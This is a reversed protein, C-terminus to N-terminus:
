VCGEPPVRRQYMDAILPFGFNKGSRRGGGAGMAAGQGVGLGVALLKAARGVVSAPQEVGRRAPWQAALRGGEVQM